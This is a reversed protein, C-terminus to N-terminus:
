REGNDIQAEIHIQKDIAEHAVAKWDIAEITERIHKELQNQVHTRILREIESETIRDISHKVRNYDAQDKVARDFMDALIQNVSENTNAM